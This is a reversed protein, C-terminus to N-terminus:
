AGAYYWRLKSREYLMLRRQDVEGGDESESGSGGESGGESGARPTSFPAPVLAPAPAGNHSRLLKPSGAHLAAAHWCKTATPGGVRNGAPPQMKPVPSQASSGSQSSPLMAARSQQASSIHAAGLEGHLTARQM